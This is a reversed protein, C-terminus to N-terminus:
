GGDGDDQQHKLTKHDFRNYKILIIWNQYVIQQATQENAYGTAQGSL